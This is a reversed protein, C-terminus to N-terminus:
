SGPTKMQRQFLEMGTPICDLSLLAQMVERREDQLDEVHFKRLGPLTQGSM